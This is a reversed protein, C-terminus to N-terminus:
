PKRKLPSSKMDFLAILITSMIIFLAGFCARINFPENFILIGIVISTIPEFTSLISSKQGGILFTGKQFLIVAGVCLVSSFVICALWCLFNAPITLQQTLLCIAFTFLSCIFAMYFSLKIGSLIKLDSRALFIIYVAYTVGSLLALMSGLPSFDEGPVYFFSVGITCFIVCFLQPYNIKEHFLVANGLIVMAPYVFHFTTATSSSIYDYSSFLLIPTICCGAFSLCAAQRLQKKSIIFTEKRLFLILAMLPLALSNRYFVLSLANVGNAYIFKAGLPMCGFLIASFIVYLYGKLSQNM